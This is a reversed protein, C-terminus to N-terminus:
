NNFFFNATMDLYNKGSYHPYKKDVKSKFEDRNKCTKAIKKLDKIYIIKTEVDKLDEPTYHSTLILGYGNNIYNQLNSIIADAGSEGPVISHCDHGLMHTYVANIEPIIIDFGENTDIINFEIGGIIVKGFTKVSFKVM